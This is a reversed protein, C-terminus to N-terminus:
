VYVDFEVDDFSLHVPSGIRDLGKNMRTASFLYNGTVEFKVTMTLVGEAVTAVFRTDDIVQTADVVREAIIMYEGDPLALDATVTAAVDKTLWYINGTLIAESSVVLNTMPLVPKPSAVGIIDEVPVVIKEPSSFIGESYIYGVPYDGKIVLDESHNAAIYAEDAEIVNDIINNKVITYTAM